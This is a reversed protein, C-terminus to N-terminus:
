RRGQRIRYRGALGTEDLFRWVENTLLDLSAGGESSARVIFERVAPPVMSGLTEVAKNLGAVAEELSTVDGRHPLRRAEIISLRSLASEVQLRLQSVDLGAQELLALFDEDVNPIATEELHRRWTESLSSSVRRSEDSVRQVVKHLNDGAGAVPDSSLEATARDLDERLSGLTSRVEPTIRHGRPRIEGAAAVARELREAAEQVAETRENIRGIDLRMKDQDVAARLVSDLARARELLTM